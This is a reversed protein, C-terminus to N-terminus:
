CAPLPFRLTLNHFRVKLDNTTGIVAGSIM